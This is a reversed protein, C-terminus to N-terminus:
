AEQLDRQAIAKGSNSILDRRISRLDYRRQLYGPPATAIDSKRVFRSNTSELEFLFTRTRGKSLCRELIPLPYGAVNCITPPKKFRISRDCRRCISSEM